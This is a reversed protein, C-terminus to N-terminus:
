CSGPSLSNQGLNQGLRFSPFSPSFTFACRLWHELAPSSPNRREPSASVSAEPHFSGAGASVLSDEGMKRLLSFTNIM